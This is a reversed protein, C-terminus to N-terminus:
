SIDLASLRDVEIKELHSGMSALVDDSSEAASGAGFSEEGEEQASNAEETNDAMVTEDGDSQGSRSPKTITRDSDSSSGESSMSQESAKGASSNSAGTAEQISSQKRAGCGRDPRKAVKSKTDM